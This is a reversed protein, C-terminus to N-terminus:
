VGPGLPEFTHVALRVRQAIRAPSERDSAVHVVVPSRAPLDGLVRDFAGRFAHLFEQIEVDGSEKVDHSKARTRIREMLLADPADVVVVLDLAAAWQALVRRRWAEFRPAGVARAAFVDFWALAFLPGEDIVLAGERERRTREISSALARLRVVHKLPELGIRPTEWALASLEPLSRLLSAALLGRRQNWISRAASAGDRGRLEELLASKGAGALGLLEVVPAGHRTVSRPPDTASPTM